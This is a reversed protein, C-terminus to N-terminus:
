SDSRPENETRNLLPEGESKLTGNNNMVENLVALTFFRILVEPSGTPIGERVAIRILAQIYTPSAPVSELLTDIYKIAKESVEGPNAQVEIVEKKLFEIDVKIM